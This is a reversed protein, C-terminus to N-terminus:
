NTLLFLAFFKSYDKIIGSMKNLTVNDSASSDHIYTKEYNVESVIESDEGCPQTIGTLESWPDDEINTSIRGGWGPPPPGANLMQATSVALLISFLILILLKKM